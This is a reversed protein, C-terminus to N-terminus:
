GSGRKRASGEETDEDLVEGGGRRRGVEGIGRIKDGSHKGTLESERESLLRFEFQRVRKAERKEEKAVCLRSPDKSGRKVSRIQGDRDHRSTEQENPLNQENGKTRMSVFVHSVKM